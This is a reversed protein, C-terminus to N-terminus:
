FFFFLSQFSVSMTLEISVDDPIPSPPKEITKKKKKGKKDKGGKKTPSEKKEPPKDAKEVSKIEPIKEEAKPELAVSKRVSVKPELKEALEEKAEAEGEVAPSETVAEEPSVEGTSEPPAARSTLEEGGEATTPM